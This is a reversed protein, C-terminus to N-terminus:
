KLSASPVTGLQKGTKWEVELYEVERLAETCMFKHMAGVEIKGSWLNAVTGVYWGKRLLIRRHVGEPHVSMIMFVTEPASKAAVLAITVHAVGLGAFAPDDGPRSLVHLTAFGGELKETRAKLFPALGFTDLSHRRVHHFWANM